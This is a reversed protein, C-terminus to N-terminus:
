RNVGSTVAVAAIGQSSQENLHQSKELLQFRQALAMHRQIALGALAPSAISQRLLQLAAGAKQLPITFGLKLRHCLRRRGAPIVVGARSRDALRTTSAQAGLVDLPQRDRVWVNRAQVRDRRSRGVAQRHRLACAEALCCAM